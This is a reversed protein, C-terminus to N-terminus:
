RIQARAEFIVESALAWFIKPVRVAPMFAQEVGASGDAYRCELIANLGLSEHARGIAPRLLAKAKHSMSHQKHEGASCAKLGRVKMFAAPLRPTSCPKLGANLCSFCDAKAASTGSRTRICSEGFQLSVRGSDTGSREKGSEALHLRQIESIGTLGQDQPRFLKAAM